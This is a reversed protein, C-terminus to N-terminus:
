GVHVIRTLVGGTCVISVNNRVRYGRVISANGVDCTLRRTGDLTSRATSGHGNANSFMISVTGSVAIDDANVRIIKGTAWTKSSVRAAAAAPLVLGVM